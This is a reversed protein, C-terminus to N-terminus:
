RPERMRSLEVLAAADRNFEVQRVPGAVAIEHETAPGTVRVVVDETSRDAYVITVTVPVDHLRPGSQHLYVRVTDDEIRAAHHLRPIDSDYVWGDFFTGLELGSVAEFVRQLDDTGAERFASAAYFQRLGEVFTDDGVLRRLMHLVAAGKNYVIARHMRPDGRVHGVRQGLHIPGASTHALSTRRFQVLMDAFVRPAHTAEAYMAAFYQAFAESLWQERYNKRGVAQGWWQHAIEHALFYEPFRDFSAPDDRWSLIAQPVPENLAILYAPSHGGPLHNELLAITLAPYPVDDVLSAYFRVIDEAERLVARGRAQQTRTTEVAMTMRMPTADPDDDGREIVLETEAARVFRSAVVALYRVPQRARFVFTHEDAALALWDRLGATELTVREGTAMARYGPPVTLRLSATAPVPVPGQPYWRSRGTLLYFPETGRVGALPTDDGVQLAETGIAQSPLRGEYTLTLVLSANPARDRPLGVFITDQGRMRLHLLPGHGDSTVGTVVLPEALHLSLHPLAPDPLRVLFRASATITGRAPDLTAEVDYDVIDYLRMNADSYDRGRAAVRAASSYLAITLRRDRHFLSVDEMQVASRTYTLTGHRRTQIEALLDGAPPLLHWVDESFAGLDLTFSKPAERAFVQEARQAQRADLRAAPRTAARWVLDSPSIRVFAQEFPTDLTENGSFLRLQGQESAPAPAFRMEGRGLLVLGTVGADSTVPVVVGDRLRLQLDEADLRFDRGDFAAAPDLRLRYLNDITTLGSVTEIRWRAGSPDPVPQLDLAATVVRARGATELISDTIVQWGAAPDDGRPLRERGRVLTRTAGDVFLARGYENATDQSAFLARFAPRDGTRVAQELQRLLLEIGDAEQARTPAAVALLCLLAAAARSMM